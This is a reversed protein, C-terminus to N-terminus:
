VRRGNVLQRTRQTEANDYEVRVIDTLEREGIYVRISSGAVNPTALQQRLTSARPISVFTSLARDMRRREGELGGVIGQGVPAGVERAMVKSPSKIKLQKKLATVMANAVNTLYTTLQAQRSKLGALLGDAAKIGADYMGGAVLNGTSDAVKGIQAYHANLEKIQQPTSRLLVDAMQGGAQAGQAAIQQVMEASLGKRLLAALNNQFKTVAALNAKMRAVVAAPNPAIQDMMSGFLDRAGRTVDRVQVFVQGRAERLEQLRATAKIVGANVTDLARRTAILAKHQKTLYNITADRQAKITKIEAASLESGRALDGAIDRRRTYLLSQERRIAAVQDASLGAKKGKARKTAADTTLRKANNAIQKQLRVDERLLSQREKPTLIAGLILAKATDRVKGILANTASTFAQSSAKLGIALGEVINRGIPIMAKAPSSIGLSSKVSSLFGSAMNKAASALAGGMNGVGNIMGQVVDQGASVLLGGLNGLATTIKGPMATFFSWVGSAATTIASSMSSLANRGVQSLTGPLSTLLSRVRGPLGTFFSWVARAAATIARGMASLASRGLEGLKNGLSKALGLAKGPLAKFFSWVAQAARIQARNLAQMAELGLRALRTVLTKALNLARGPLSAFFKLVAAVGNNIGRSMALLAQWGLKLLKGALPALARAIKLPIGVFLMIWGGIVQGLGKGVRKFDGTFIGAIINVWGKIMTIISRLPTLVVNVITAFIPRVANWAVKIGKWASVFAAGVAKAAVVLARLVVKGVVLAQKGFAALARGVTHVLERFPTWKKYLLIGIAVLAVIATIVAGIPTMAFAIGARVAGWIGATVLKLGKAVPGLGKGMVTFAPALKRGLVAGAKQSRSAFASMGSAPQAMGSGFAVLSRTTSATASALKTMGTITQGVGTTLKGLVIIAPGSVAAIGAIKLITSQTGSDLSTFQNVLETIQGALKTVHPALAAGITIGATELSGRLQEMSGSAGGTNVAAMKQAAGLDRTATTMKNLETSGARMFISAARAADSGFITNLAATRQAESLPGLKAKLQDAINGLPQINGQADTFRLGLKKMAAAAEDTSPVLRTLMTKLSTGADSGKVGYQDFLALAGITTQLDLGANRAGPGVQSLAQGLSEVSATSANAGGALAAAVASADKAGLGFTALTNSMYGAASGLELGGAAALTLTQQLGGGQIQAATMGGKALELMADAAAGASFATEKGMTLALQTLDQM